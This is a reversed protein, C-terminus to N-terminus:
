IAAAVSEVEGLWESLSVAQAQLGFVQCFSEVLVPAVAAMTVQPYFQVLSGVPRDPIGCPVIREFARLDPCVNLAFGHYTVWRSVKIGIAALKSGEVWVGTLGPIREGKLGFYALCEILVQELQRLYWHLDPQHRKLNLLPYGVWQGPGHYTVEGGREVRLVEIPKGFIGEQEWSHHPASPSGMPQALSKLFKPDAGAGLTYVAPHTLLLLGDPFQPDRVMRALREQQWAWATRYPVEGPQHIHLPPLPM